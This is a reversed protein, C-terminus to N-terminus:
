LSNYVNMVGTACNEPSFLAAHKVGKDVLGKALNSDTLLQWIADAMETESLPNVYLAADGGTEPMCSVNSTIVPIRSCLAELVPIGFGEFVSPYIMCAAMQYIAPMDDSLVGGPMESIFRVRSLLDNESLYDMVLQKYANKGGGIVVLPVDTKGALLKLAKCITLLNKREIITGVSLLYKEPLNYKLRVADKAAPSAMQMFAPNCSQYCVTIKHAPINYFMMLDDATQKSIAIVHNANKGANRFKKRYIAVDAKKYQRPYREFILDHMTVVSKISGGEIGVPIEHSLGHYIDINLKKLDKKVGGSRWLSPIKKYLGGPLVTHINDAAPPTYLPGLGTTALYYEHQPYGAFLSQLLNRSYHGLGTNNYFARKADFAIRM